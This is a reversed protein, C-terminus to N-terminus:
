LPSLLALYWHTLMREIGGKLTNGASPCSRCSGQLRLFVVGGAYGRFEVDGGDEQVAPRVRSELVELIQAVMDEDEPLVKLAGEPVVLGAAAAQAPDPFPEAEAHEKLVAAIQPQLQSWSAEEEQVAPESDEVIFVTAGGQESVAM